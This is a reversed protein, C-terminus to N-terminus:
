SAWQLMATMLQQNARHIRQKVAPLSADLAEGAESYSLGNLVVLEHATRLNDSLRTVERELKRMYRTRDLSYAPCSTEPASHTAIPGDGLAAEPRRQRYRVRDLFTRRAITLAWTSVNGRETYRDRTLHIKIFTDQCVDEADAADTLRMCLKLVRPSLLRYLEDFAQDDGSAYRCMAANTRAELDQKASASKTEM